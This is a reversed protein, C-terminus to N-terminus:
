QTKVDTNDATDKESSISDRYVHDKDISPKKCGCAVCGSTSADEDAYVTSSLTAISLTTMLTIMALSMNKM